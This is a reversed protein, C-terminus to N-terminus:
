YCNETVEIDDIKHRDMLLGGLYKFEVSKLCDNKIIIEEINFSVM